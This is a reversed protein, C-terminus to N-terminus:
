DEPKIMYTSNGEGWNMDGHIGHEFAQRVKRSPHRILRGFKVHGFGFRHQERRDLIQKKGIETM